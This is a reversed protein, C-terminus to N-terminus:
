KHIELIVPHRIQALIRRPLQERRKLLQSPVRRLIKKQVLNLLQWVPTADHSGQVVPAGKFDEDTPAIRFEQAPFQGRLQATTAHLHRHHRKREGFKQPEFFDLDSRGHDVGFGPPAQERRELLIKGSSSEGARDRAFGGQLSPPNQLAIVLRGVVLVDQLAVVDPGLFRERGHHAMHHVLSALQKGDGGERFRELLSADFAALARDRVVERM